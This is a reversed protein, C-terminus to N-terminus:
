LFLEIADIITGLPFNIGLRLIYFLFYSLVIIVVIGFRPYAIIAYATPLGVVIVLIVTAGIFGTYAIVVACIVAGALLLIFGPLNYMKEVIFVEHLWQKVRGKASIFNSQVAGM